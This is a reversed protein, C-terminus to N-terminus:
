QNAAAATTAATVVPFDPATDHHPAAAPTDPAHSSTAVPAPVYQPSPPPAPTGPSVSLLLLIIGPSPSLLILLPLLLLLMRFILPLPLLLTEESASSRQRYRVIESSLSRYCVRVIVFSTAFSRPQTLEIPVRARRRGMGRRHQAIENKENRSATM